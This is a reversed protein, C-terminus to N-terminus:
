PEKAAKRVDKIKAEYYKGNFRAKQPYKLLPYSPVSFEKGKFFFVICDSKIDPIGIAIGRKYYDTFSM